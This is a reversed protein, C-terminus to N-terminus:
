RNRDERDMREVAEAIQEPTAAEYAAQCDAAIKATNIRYYNM